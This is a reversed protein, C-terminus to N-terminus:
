CGGCLCQKEWERAAAHFSCFCMQHCSFMNRRSLFQAIWLFDSMDRFINNEKQKMRAPKLKEQKVKRGVENLLALGHPPGKSNSGYSDFANKYGGRTSSIVATCKCELRDVPM